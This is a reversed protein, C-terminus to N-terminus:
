NLATPTSYSQLQPSCLTEFTASWRPQQIASTRISNWRDVKGWASCLIWNLERGIRNRPNEL